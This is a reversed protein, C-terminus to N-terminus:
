ETQRRIAESVFQQLSWLYSKQAETYTIQLAEPVILQLNAGQMQDTQRTSIGPELTILHKRSVKNAEPLVQRWRDKCTSKAGLMLLRPDDREAEAYTVAGPFLFDPKNGNETIAGRDYKLSFANFVAELHNELSFGMRAKRRNQVSLSFSLFGDIDVDGGDYFGQKLREAVIRKELRRFMAEEHDLWAMLAFDPDDLASISPLTQRALDSFERTKPFTLEFRDIITDLSNAEPDEFEIGLEDLIFRAAFDLEPDTDHIEKSVFRGGVDSFGFLWLLQKESTTGSPTVIFFLSGNTEKALFLTDGEQMAETVPNSKYYLRWEASRHHQNERTDYHTSSGEVSFADQENGLWIYYTPFVTKEEGLFQDRMSKTTGIEHQNSSKPEADVATLTKVGVGEFYDSLHGRRITM